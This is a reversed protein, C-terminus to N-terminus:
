FWRRKDKEEFGPADCSELKQEEIDEDVFPHDNKFYKSSLAWPPCLRFCISGM